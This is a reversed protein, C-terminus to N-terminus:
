DNVTMEGVCYLGGRCTTATIIIIAIFVWNNRAASASCLKRPTLAHSQSAPGETAITAMMRMTIKVM